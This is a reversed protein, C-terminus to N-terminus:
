DNIEGKVIWNLAAEKAQDLNWNYALGIAMGGFYLDKFLGIENIRVAFFNTTVRRYVEATRYCDDRKILERYSPFHGECSFAVGDIIEADRTITLLSQMKLTQKQTEQIELIMEQIVLSNVKVAVELFERSKIAYSIEELTLNDM